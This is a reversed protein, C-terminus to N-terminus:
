LTAGIKWENGIREVKMKPTENRGDEQEILLSLIIENESITEKNLIRIAKTQGFEKVLKDRVEVDSKPELHQRQQAHFEPTLSNFFTEVDGGVAASALSLITSEPNAYGAFAWSERPFDVQGARDPPSDPSQM